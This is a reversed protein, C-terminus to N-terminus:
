RAAPFHFNAARFDAMLLIPSRPKVARVGLLRPRMARM